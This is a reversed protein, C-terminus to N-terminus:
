EEEVLRAGYLDLSREQLSAVEAEADTNDDIKYRKVTEGNDLRYLEVYRNM